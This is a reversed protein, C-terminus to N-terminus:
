KAEEVRSIFDPNQSLTTVIKRPCKVSRTSRYVVIVPYINLLHQGLSIAFEKHKFTQPYTTIVGDYSHCDITFM